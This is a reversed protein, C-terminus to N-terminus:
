KVQFNGLNKQMLYTMTFVPTTTHIVLIEPNFQKIEKLSEKKSINLAAADLFKCEHGEREVYAVATLYWDPHRQVRGRSKAAWRASRCWDKGWSPNLFFIRM